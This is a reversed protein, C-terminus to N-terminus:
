PLILETFALTNEQKKAKYDEQGVGMAYYKERCVACELYLTRLHILNNEDTMKCTHEFFFKFLFDINSQSEKVEKKEAGM